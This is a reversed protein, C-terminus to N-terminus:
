SIRKFYADTIVNIGWFMVFKTNKQVLITCETNSKFQIAGIHNKNADYCHIYPPTWAADCYICYTYTDCVPIYGTRNGYAKFEVPNGDADLYYDRYIDSILNVDIPVLDKIKEKLVRRREM